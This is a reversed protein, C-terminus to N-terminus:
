DLVLTVEMAVVLGAEARDEVEAVSTEAEAAAVMVTVSVVATVMVGTAKM